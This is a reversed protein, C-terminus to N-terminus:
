HLFDNEDLNDPSEDLQKDTGLEHYLMLVALRVYEILEFYATEDEENATVDGYNVQAIEIIDNLADTAEGPERNEILADTQQLGAVFGQCWLGLAEARTDLNARDTPLLLSFEFSFENIQHYSTEYLEQLMSLTKKSKKPGLVIKEWSDDTKGSTGCILGCLLGHVQAAQFNSQTKELALTLETYSPLSPAQSMTKNPRSQLVYCLLLFQTKPFNLTYLTIRARYVVFNM